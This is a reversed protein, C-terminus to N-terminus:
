KAGRSQQQLKIIHAATREKKVSDGILQQVQNIKRGIARSFFEGRALTARHHDMRTAHADKDNQLQLLQVRLDEVPMSELPQANAAVLATM